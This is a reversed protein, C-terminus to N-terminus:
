RSSETMAYIAFQPVWHDYALYRGIHAAHAAKGADIHTRLLARLRKADGEPLPQELLRAFTWIRSWNMGLEHVAKAGTTVPKLDAPPLPHAKRFAERVPKPQTIAVVYDWCGRRSFFEPRGEDQAYTLAPTKGLGSKAIWASVAAAGKADGRHQYWDYLQAAAWAHNGYEKVDPSFTRADMWKRLSAAVADGPARMRTGDDAKRAASWQELEIALRLYWARGYPMEFAPQEALLRAEIKLQAPALREAARRAAKAHRKTVRDLRLLAWHGHVSSHWDYCGHFIAHGTDKREIAKGIVPGLGDLFSDDSVPPEKADAAGTITVLMLLAIAPLRSVWM